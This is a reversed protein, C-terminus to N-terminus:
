IRNGSGLGFTASREAPPQPAENALPDAPRPRWEAVTAKLATLETPKLYGAIEDRKRAAEADGQAAALAFWRYAQAPSKRTGIGRAHLVAINFQSDRVGAEAAETFWRAAAVYDPNGGIGSALLTAFNHMARVNGGQAAREYWAAALKVDRTTGIAKDYMLALREQAPVLGAQAVREFLRLALTSDQPIGRGEAARLAIEYVATGDGSLAAQRLAAPIDAPLDGLKDPDVPYRIAAPPPSLVAPSAATLSSPQFLDTATPSAPATPAASVEPRGAPDTATTPETQATAPVPSRPASALIQATGAALVLCALGFFLSRRHSDLKRRLRELFSPALDSGAEAIDQDTLVETAPEQEAVVEDTESEGPAPLTRSARRAAAIFSARVDDLDPEQTRDPLADTASSDQPITAAIDQIQSLASAQLRRVAAELRDASPLAARSGGQGALAATPLADCRSLLSELADHVALLTQQTKREARAQLAKLEVFGAKVADLDRDTLGAPGANRAVLLDKMQTSAEDFAQRWTEPMRALEEACATVRRELDGLAPVVSGAKRLEEELRDFRGNLADAQELRGDAMHAMRETLVALQEAIPDLNAPEPVPRDALIDLRRSMDQLHVPVDNKEQLAVSRGLAACVEELSTRLAAFDSRGIQEARLQEVQRGLAAVSESLGDIQQPEARRALDQRLDVIQSSLFDIVSRDVSTEALQTVKGKLQEIEDGLRRHLNDAVTESLAEIKRNLGAVSGALTLLDKSSPSRELDRALLRFTEDLTAIQGRTALSDMGARLRNIEQRIAEVPRSPDDIRTALRSVDTRLGALTETLPALAEGTPNESRREVTELRGKLASLNRSLAESLREQRDAVSRATENLRDETQEIWLAMAELAVVNRSAQDTLTPEERAPEPTPFATEFAQGLGDTEDVAEEPPPTTVPGYRDMAATIWDELSLGSRRAAKEAASRTEPDLADLYAPDPRRM